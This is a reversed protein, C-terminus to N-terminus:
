CGGKGGQFKLLADGEPGAGDQVRQCAFVVIRVHKRQPAQAVDEEFEEPM